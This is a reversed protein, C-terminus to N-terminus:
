ASTYLVNNIINRVKSSASMVATFLIVFVNDMPVHEMDLVLIVM